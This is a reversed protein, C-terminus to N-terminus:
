RVPQSDAKAIEGNPAFEVSVFKGRKIIRRVEAEEKPTLTEWDPDRIRNLTDDDEYPRSTAADSM